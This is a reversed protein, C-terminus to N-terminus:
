VETWNVMTKCFTIMGAICVTQRVDLDDELTRAESAAPKDDASARACDQIAAQGRAEVAFLESWVLTRLHEQSSSHHCREPLHPVGVMFFPAIAVGMARTDTEM